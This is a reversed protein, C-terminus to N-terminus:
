AMDFAEALTAECHIRVTDFVPLPSNDADLLLGAEQCGLILCDAGMRKLRAAIAEFDTRSQADVMNRVLEEYIVEHIRERCAAEPVVPQLGLGRLRDLYFRDEMTLQTGMLGPHSFGADLIRQAAADATHVLPVSVDRMARPVAKHMMTSALVIMDAGAAELAEAQEALMAGIALWDDDNQLLMARAYDVSRVLMRPADPSDPRAAVLDCLLDYYQLTSAKSMAGLVGITKMRPRAPPPAPIPPPAGHSGNESPPPSTM